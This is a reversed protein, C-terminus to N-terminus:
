SPRIEPEDYGYLSRLHSPFGNRNSIWRFPGHLIGVFSRSGRLFAPVDERLSFYCRRVLCVPFHAAVSEFNSVRCLGHLFLPPPHLAFASWGVQEIKYGLHRRFEDVRFAMM